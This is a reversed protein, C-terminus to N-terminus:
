RLERDARTQRRDHLGSLLTTVILFLGLFLVLALASVAYADPSM